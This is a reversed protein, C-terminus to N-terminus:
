GKEQGHVLIIKEPSVEHAMKVLSEKDSNASFDFYQVESKVSIKRNSLEDLIYGEDMLRRGNTDEVQYGVLLISSKTDGKIKSIYDVVPGGTLMGATTVIVCPEEIIEKRLRSDSVWIANNAAKQLLDPDRLYEPYSLFVKVAAKAMGDLYVPYDVSDLMMLMEQSRGVAFAPVIVVGGRDCTEEIKGLFESTTKKRDPHM